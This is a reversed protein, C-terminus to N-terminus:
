LSSLILLRILKYIQTQLVFNHKTKQRKLPTIMTQVYKSKSESQIIGLKMQTVM